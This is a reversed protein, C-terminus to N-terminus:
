HFDSISLRLSSGQHQPRAQTIKIPSSFIPGDVVLSQYEDDGCFNATQRSALYEIFTSSIPQGLWSPDLRNNLIKVIIAKFGSRLFSELQDRTNRGYHPEILEIGRPECISLLHKRQPDKPDNHGSIVANFHIRRRLRDIAEMSDEICAPVSRPNSLQYTHLLLGIRQAQLRILNAPVDQFASVEQHKTAANLLGIVRIGRRMSLYLAYCSDKGGSWTALASLNKLTKIPKM